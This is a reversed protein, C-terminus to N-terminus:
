KSKKKSINAVGNIIVGFAADVISSVINREIRKIATKAVKEAISAPISKKTTSTKKAMKNEKNSTLYKFKDNYQLGEVPATLGLATYAQLSFNIAM